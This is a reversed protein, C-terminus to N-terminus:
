PDIHELYRDLWYRQNDDQFTVVFHSDLLGKEEHFKLGKEIMYARFPRRILAGVRYTERIM